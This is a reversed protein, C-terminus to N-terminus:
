VLIGNQEYVLIVNVHKSVLCWNKFHFQLFVLQLVLLNVMELMDLVYTFTLGGIIVLRDALSISQIYM